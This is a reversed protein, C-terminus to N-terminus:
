TILVGASEIEIEHFLRVREKPDTTYQGFYDGVSVVPVTQEPHDIVKKVLRKAKDAM